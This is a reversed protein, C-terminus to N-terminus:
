SQEDVQLENNVQSIGSTNRAIMEALLKEEQSGVVGKLTVDDNRTDVNIKLGKTNGNAMLNGKVRATSTADRIWQAFTRNPDDAAETLEADTQADVKLDSRVDSIGAIGEAIQVALDRDIDSKVTGSLTVVSNEVDTAITFPNLHPNLAYTTELRGTIWADKVAQSVQPDTPENANSFTAASMLAGAVAIPGLWHRTCQTTKM